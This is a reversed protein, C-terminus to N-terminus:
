IAGISYAIAFGALALVDVMVVAVGTFLVGYVLRIKDDRIMKLRPKLFLPYPEEDTGTFLLQASSIGPKKYTFMLVQGIAVIVM